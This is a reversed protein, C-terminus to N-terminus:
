PIYINVTMKVFQFWSEQTNGLAGRNKSQCSPMQVGTSNMPM